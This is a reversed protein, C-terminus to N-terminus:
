PAPLRHDTARDAGAEDHDAPDPRDPKGAARAHHPAAAGTTVLTALVVAGVSALTGGAQPSGALALFAALLSLIGVLAYAMHRM